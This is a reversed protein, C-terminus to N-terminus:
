PQVTVPVPSAFIHRPKRGNKTTETTLATTCADSNLRGTRHSAQPTEAATNSTPNASIVWM